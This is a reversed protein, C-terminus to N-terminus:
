SMDDVAPGPLTAASLAFGAILGTVVATQLGTQIFRAIPKPM